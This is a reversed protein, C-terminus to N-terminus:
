KFCLSKATAWDANLKDALTNPLNCNANHNNIGQTKCMKNWETMFQKYASTTCAEYSKQNTIQIVASQNSGNTNSQSFKTTKLALFCAAVLLVAILLAGVLLKKQSQPRHVENKVKLEKEKM